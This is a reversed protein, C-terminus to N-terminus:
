NKIFSIVRKFLEIQNGKDRLLNINKIRNNDLLHEKELHDNNQELLENQEDNLSRVVPLCKNYLMTCVIDAFEVINITKQQETDQYKVVSDRNSLIVPCKHNEGILAYKLLNVITDNNKSSIDLLDKITSSKLGNLNKEIYPILPDLKENTQINNSQHKPTQNGLSIM